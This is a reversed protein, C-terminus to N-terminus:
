LDSVFIGQEAYAAHPLGQEAYAAIDGSDAAVISSSVTSVPTQTQPGNAVVPCRGLLGVGIVAALFRASQTLLAYRASVNFKTHTTQDMIAFGMPAFDM